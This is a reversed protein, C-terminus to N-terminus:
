INVPNSALFVNVDLHFRWPSYLDQRGRGWPHRNQERSCGPMKGRLVEKRDGFGQPPSGGAQPQQPEAEEPSLRWVGAPATPSRKPERLSICHIAAHPCDSCLIQCDRRSKRNPILLIISLCKCTCRHCKQTTLQKSGEQNLVIKVFLM